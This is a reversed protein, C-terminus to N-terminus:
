NEGWKDCFNCIEENSIPLGGFQNLRETEFGHIRLLNALQGSYNAEVTLLKSCSDAFSSIAEKPLPNLRKPFFAGIKMGKELLSLTAEHVAGSVSGWAFIGVEPESSGVVVYSGEEPINAIKRFRKETMKIHNEPSIDPAGYEDHEIGGTSYVGPQGPVSIPSIGSDTVLYRKYEKLEEKSPQLRNEIKLKKLSPAAMTQVRHSLAQDSLLIVPVQCAEALNFANITQYFCDEVDLPALVIRPSDGHGGFVAHNLDAQQTKTPLGTSPGGRQSDVIVMPLELMSALGLTETMLSLGPGSTATMSKTGAMSAGLVSSIAAIEDEVQLVSGGFGPLYRAMFELIDTAPTIPYGAYFRLGSSIAGLSIAQNGTLIMRGKKKRKLIEQMDSPTLFKEGRWYSLNELIYGEGAFLAVLNKELLAPKRKLIAEVTGKVIEDPISLLQGLIGLILVNKSKAFGVERKTRLTLPIGYSTGNFAEPKFRTIDYLLVGNSRLNDRHRYWSDEDLAVLVDSRNGVSLIERDAARIWYSVPGGKIEAPYTRFTLIEMGARALLQAVLTGLTVVGEGSEGAIRICFDKM